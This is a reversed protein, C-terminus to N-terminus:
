VEDEKFILHKYKTYLFSILLLLIGLSVLVITKSITSLYSLDHMFLKFLTIAFLVIAAIRLHKKKLWIGLGILLLACIGWIISLGLYNTTTPDDIQTWKFFEGSMIWIVSLALLLDLLIRYKKVGFMQKLYQYSLWFLIGVFVYSLYSVLVYGIGKAFVDTTTQQFYSYHLSDLAEMGALLFVGIVAGNLCLNFFGLRNNKLVKLNTFSLLVLFLITYNILWINQLDLLDYNRVFRDQSSDDFKVITESNGYLQQFYANIEVWFTFYTVLLFLIPLALNIFKARRSHAVFPLASPSDYHLKNIIAFAIVVLISSLFHINFIPSVLTLERKGDAYNYHPYYDASWDQILSFTSLLILAYSLKEYFVIGKTRGIWFLLAAEGAWLITVWNGDLQVPIAITMFVLVLGIVLYFLQKDSQQQKYIVRGVIFHVIANLLTFLGLYDKGTTHHDLLAYGVGYYIFSNLLLLVVTPLNIKEKKLLKYALFTLYFLVFFLTAFFFATGFFDAPNYDMLWFLYILWTQAFAAYFLAKWYKRFAIALIGINIIAIYSFLTKVDGSGSSLFFPVAYAGVLGIHAIVQKDYQVAALVAFATFLVMLIFTITQPLLGYFDYAAFTIFYMIAIAGSVLVASYNKYKAKLKIGFVLLGIGMLYGLIIRTLPSILENDISYKAGIVVGIITILIGLKAILNEGIFKEFNDKIDLGTFVNGIKSFISTRPAKQSTATTKQAKLPPVLEHTTDHQLARVEDRLLRIDATLENQKHVLLGIRKHLENIKDNNEHM